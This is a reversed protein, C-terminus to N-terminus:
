RQVHAVVIGDVPCKDAAGLCVGAAVASDGHRRLDLGGYVGEHRATFLPLHKTRCLATSEGKGGVARREVCRQLGSAHLIGHVSDIAHLIVGERRVRAPVCECRQHFADLRWLLVLQLQDPMGGLCHEAVVLVYVNLRQPADRVGESANKQYKEIPNIAKSNCQM